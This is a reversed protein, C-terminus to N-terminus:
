TPKRATSVTSCANSRTKTPFHTARSRQRQHSARRDTAIPTSSQVQAQQTRSGRDPPLDRHSLDGSQERSSVSALCRLRRQCHGAHSRRCHRRSRSRLAEHRPRPGHSWDCAAGLRSFPRRLKGLCRRPARSMTPASRSRNRAPGFHFGRIVGESFIAYPFFQRM